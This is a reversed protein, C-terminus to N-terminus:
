SERDSTSYSAKPNLGLKSRAAMNAARVWYNLRGHRIVGSKGTLSDMYRWTPAYTPKPRHNKVDKTLHLFAETSGLASAVKVGQVISPLSAGNQVSELTVLDGYGPLYPLCRSFDVPVQAVEDLPMDDRVGMMREFTYHGQPDFSTAIAAFGINMVLLNPINNKRAERAVSTGIELHTLESEDLVIDAGAVFEAANEATVGEQWVKVETQPRLRGITEAMVDVKMRGYTSSDAWAVRNSNEPEFVEPDAIRIEKPGAMMAIAIGLDHGDGGCGAIAVVREGMARQEEESWFGFNRAFEPRRVFDSM